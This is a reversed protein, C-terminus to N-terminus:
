RNLVFLYRQESMPMLKEIFTIKQAQLADRLNPGGFLLLQRSKRWKLLRPLKETFKDLARCTISECNGPDVEQFQKNVVEARAALGLAAVVLDLFKTKKEKSEILIARLDDRVLLCPISPLGGGAGVDAFRAGAPLHDLLTLSELIHRLAFEEATSPGVLHLIPNHELILEYYDALKEIADDSITIGFAPQHAIIAGTFENRM